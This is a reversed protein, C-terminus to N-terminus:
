EDGSVVRNRGAAKGQYLRRDAVAILQAADAAEAPFAAVGITVTLAGSQLPPKLESSSTAVGQRLREALQGAVDLDTHPLLVAFEEGGYRCIVDAARVNRTLIGSLLVLIRDGEQHGHQDNIQKFRDADILFLSTPDEYRKSRELEVPLLSDFYGRNFVGTLPDRASFQKLERLKRRLELQSVVQRSLAELAEQQKATLERAVRDIVCLTGLAHGGPVRLPAGAYFRIEPDGVVLPNRAFREDTTADRVVLTERGAIAHACFAIDRHTEAAELGIRSKFWQRDSDVLSVLAIPTQCIHSALLTLDDFGQEPETDLIDYQELTELREPEDPPLPPRPYEGAPRHSRKTASV